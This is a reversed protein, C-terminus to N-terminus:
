CSHLSVYFTQWLPFCVVIAWAVLFLVFILFYLTNQDTCRLVDDSLRVFPSVSMQVLLHISIRIKKKKILLKIALIYCPYSIQWLQRPFNSLSSKNIFHMWINNQHSHSQRGTTTTKEAETLNQIVDSM